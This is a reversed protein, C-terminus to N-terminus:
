VPSKAQDAITQKSLGSRDELEEKFVMVALEVQRLREDDFNLVYLADNRENCSLMTVRAVLSSGIIRQSSPRPLPASVRRM